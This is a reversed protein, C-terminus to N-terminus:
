DHAERIEGLPTIVVKRVNRKKLAGDSQIVVIDKADNKGKNVKEIYKKPRADLNGTFDLKKESTGRIVFPRDVGNDDTLMVSEGPALSFLFKFGPGHSRCVVSINEKLRRYAEFMSVCRWTRGTEGGNKNLKALVEVHHNNGGVAYRRREGEAIALLKQTKHIRVKRIRVKRIPTRRGDKTTLYPACDPNEFLKLDAKPLRGFADRIAQRVAKDVIVEDNKIDKASLKHVPMRLHYPRDNDVKKADGPTETNPTTKSRKRKKGPTESKPGPGWYTQEHLPGSVKRSVRRSVVIKDTAERVDESFGAWPLEVYGGFWRRGERQARVAAESLIHMARRTTLAVVLADVAHHRHDARGKGPSKLNEEIVEAPKRNLPWNNVLGRLGWEDRLFATVGGRAAQIRRNADAGYLLGLYAQAEKAAYATDTLQRRCFEDFEPKDKSLFLRVKHNALGGPFKKLRLTIEHWRQENNGFAEYPTQKGKDRNAQRECLTKNLYSNDLSISLPVIHEIEFSGDFLAGMSIPRGTYPCQKGCEEWLLIKEIDARTPNQNGMEDLVSKGAAQRRKEQERNRKWATERSKRGKRLERALEIRISEPKGYRRVLANVVKRLETLTRAVAPNRLGPIAKDVRPLLDMVDAPLRDGYVKKAAEMYPIGKGMEPLLKAIARLSLGTYGDELSLGAFKQAQERDLGWAKTGRRELTEDKVTKRWDEVVADHEVASMSQWRELGFVDILKKATRNGVFKTEGGKEENFNLKEGKKLGLLKAAEKFPLDGGEELRVVLVKREAPSLEPQERGLVRINNVQQLMRFRQADLCAWPARRRGKEWPCEGVLGAASKLPRQRFIARHLRKRFDDTFRAPDRRAQAKWILDFEEEYMARATWHKPGRIREEGPLRLFYEALTRCGLEKMKVKLVEITKKVEGLEEEKGAKRDTRRNSLFGRRQALHFLARGIAYSSLCRDPDLAMARLFYPLRQRLDAEPLPSPNEANIRKAEEWLEADLRNLTEHRQSTRESRAQDNRDIPFRKQEDDHGLPHEENLSPLLGKQQLRLGIIDIRRAARDHQRRLLRANRRAVTRSEERGQEINGEVGAEFVRSGMDLVGVPVPENDKRDDDAVRVAAWGISNSGLDLGLVYRERAARDANAM